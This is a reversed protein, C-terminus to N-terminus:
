EYDRIAIGVPFRPINEDTLEFYKVTIKKGIYDKGNEFMEKREERTGRPRVEFFKDEDDANTKCKFIITGKDNGKGEKFDVIEFEDDKFSKFKLLSSSRHDPQYIGRMTRIILGEYGDEVYKTHAQQLENFNNVIKLDCIKLDPSLSNLLKWREDFTMNKNNVDYLDYLHYEIHKELPDPTKRKIIGTAQQFTLKPNLGFSGLEGDLKINEPFNIKTLESKIHDLVQIKTGKRSELIVKGDKKYAVCRVGDLKPQCMYPYDTNKDKDFLKALMPRFTENKTEVYLEDNVSYLEKEQKDKWMKTAKKIASEEDKLETPKSKTLKGDVTGHETYVQNKNIWTRWQRKKNKSDIKYLTTTFDPKPVEAETEAEAEPAKPAPAQAISKIRKAKLTKKKNPKIIFSKPKAEEVNKIDENVIVSNGDKREEPKKYELSLFDFISKEDPFKNSLKDGKKKNKMESLGHENLTLDLSLARKRMVVNFAKSGTFYLIAFAYEEPPSYLFDIRRPTAGENLRAITLKKVKGDTLMEVLINKDILSQIFNNFTKEDNVIIDIDGSTEAGRRFSGVIEFKADDSEKVKDFVKDFLKQYQLIESRPIRKLVDYYYKLGILQKDNLKDKNKELDEISTIGQKVFLEANKPGIGYVDTLINVPNTKEKELVALTGTKSYEEFKKIISKGIGPKDELQKANKIPEKIDMISEQAKKYARAKIHDGKRTMIDELKGLIEVFGENNQSNENM